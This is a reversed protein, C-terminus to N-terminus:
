HPCQQIRGSIANDLCLRKTRLIKEMVSACEEDEYRASCDFKKGSITGDDGVESKAPFENSVKEMKTNERGSMPTKMLFRPKIMSM